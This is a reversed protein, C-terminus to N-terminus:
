TTLELTGKNGPLDFATATIVSGPPSTNTQVATYVWKNRDIPNLIAEGEEILAGDATRISVKVGTVRFDDKAVIAITSGPTGNYNGADIRKVVPAKIFDRFAINFATKGDTAKKQYMKKLEPSSMAGQAYLSASGFLDRVGEQKETAVANKNVVPMRTIHTGNGRKKYVYQKGFNGRAGRVLPNENIRAMEDLNLQKFFQKCRDGSCFYAMRTVGGKRGQTFSRSRRDVVYFYNGNPSTTFSLSSM